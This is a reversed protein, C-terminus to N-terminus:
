KEFLQVCCTELRWEQATDRINDSVLRHALLQGSDTYFLLQTSARGISWLGGITIWVSHSQIDYDCVSAVMRTYM